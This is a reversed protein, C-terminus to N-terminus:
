NNGTNKIELLEIARESITFAKAPTKDRTMPM